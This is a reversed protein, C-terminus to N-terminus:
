MPSGCLGCRAVGSLLRRAPRGPRASRRIKVQLREFTERDVIAPWAGESVVEGHYTRLGAIRPNRLVEVVSTGSWGRLAGQPTSIGRANWDRAISPLSVGALVREVADKILAAEDERVTVRDPEYGFPRRSGRPVGRRAAQEAERSVREGKRESEQRAVAGMIRAKFRGDSSALDTDGSVNALAVHHMDALDMFAELEAPRRTLRDLDVCVVADRLGAEIDAFMRQYAPRPKGSYASRDNDVYIEAVPWGREKALKRCLAEQREVGLGEGNRDLSIRCYIAAANPATKRASSM